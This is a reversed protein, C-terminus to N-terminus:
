RQNKNLGGQSVLEPPRRQWRTGLGRGSSRCILVEFESKAVSSSLVATSVNGKCGSNRTEPSSAKLDCLLVRCNGGWDGQSTGALAPSVDAPVHRSSVQTQSGTGMDPPKCSGIVRTGPPGLETPM